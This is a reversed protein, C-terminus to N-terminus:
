KYSTKEALIDNKQNRNIIFKSYLEDVVPVISSQLNNKILKTHQQLLSRHHDSM